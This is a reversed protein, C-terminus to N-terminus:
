SDIIENLVTCRTRKSLHSALLLKIMVIRGTERKEAESRRTSVEIRVQECRKGIRWGVGGGVGGGGGGTLEIEQRSM